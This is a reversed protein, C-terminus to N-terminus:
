GGKSAGTSVWKATYLRRFSQVISHDDAASQEITLYQWAVPKFVSRGFFRHEVDLENSNLYATLENQFIPSTPLFYGNLALVVPLTESRHLLTLRQSFKAGSPNNHDVLQRFKIRFFRTGPITSTSETARAVGPLARIQDLLEDAIALNS